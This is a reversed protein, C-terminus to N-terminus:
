DNCKRDTQICNVYISDATWSPGIEIRNKKTPGTLSLPDNKTVRQGIRNSSKEIEEGLKRPCIPRERYGQRARLAQMAANQNATFPSVNARLTERDFNKEQHSVLFQIAILLM